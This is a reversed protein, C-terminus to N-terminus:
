GYYDDDKFHNKWEPFYNLINDKRLKDRRKIHAIMSHYKMEDFERKELYDIAKTCKEIM